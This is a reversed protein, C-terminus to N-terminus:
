GLNKGGARAEDRNRLIDSYDLVVGEKEMSRMLNEYAKRNGFLGYSVLLAAGKKGAVSGAAAFFEKIRSPLASGFFGSKRAIVAIYDSLALAAPGTEQMGDLVQVTNGAEEASQRVAGAIVETRADKGDYFCILAVKM